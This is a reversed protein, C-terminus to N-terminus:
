FLMTFGGFTIERCDELYAMLIGGLGFGKLIATSNAWQMLDRNRRM